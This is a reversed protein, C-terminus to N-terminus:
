QTDDQSSPPPLIPEDQSGYDGNSVLFYPVPADGFFAICTPRFPMEWGTDNDANRLPADGHEALAATLEAIFESLSLEKKTV